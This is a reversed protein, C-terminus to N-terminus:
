CFILYRNIGGNQIAKKSFDRFLTGLWVYRDIGGWGTVDMDELWCWRRFFCSGTIKRIRLNNLEVHLLFYVMGSSGESAGGIDYGRHMGFM